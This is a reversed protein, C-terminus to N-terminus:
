NRVAERDDLFGFFEAMEDNLDSLADDTEEIGGALDRMRAYANQAGASMPGSFKVGMVEGSNAAADIAGSAKGLLGLFGSVIPAIPPFAAAMGALATPISYKLANVFDDIFPSVVMFLKALDAVAKGFERMGPEAARLAGGIETAGDGADDFAGIFGEGFAELLEDAAIKLRSMAGAFTDANAQAQGGYLRTLETTVVKLDKTALVSPNIAGNTLRNIQTFQGNAAKGLAAAVSTLDKQTAVSVDLALNLLDQAQTADGTATVLAQMAPRLEDDAVGSARQLNDIFGEVEALRFSQGVNELATSLRAVAQEEAAAAQVGDIALKVAFAALAAGAAAVAAGMAAFNPTLQGKLGAAMKGMPGTTRTAQRQLNNLDRQARKLDRDNYDTGVVIQIGKGAAM